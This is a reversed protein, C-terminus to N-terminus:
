QMPDHTLGLVCVCLVCHATRLPIHSTPHPILAQAKYPGQQNRRSYFSRRLPRCMGRSGAGAGIAAGGAFLCFVAV